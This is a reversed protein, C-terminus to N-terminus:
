KYSLNGVFERAAAANDSRVSCYWTNSAWEIVASKAGDRNGEIVLKNGEVSAKSGPDNKESSSRKATEFEEKARDSNPFVTIDVFVDVGEPSKYIAHYSKRGPTEQQRFADRSFKGVSAPMMESPPGSLWSCGLALGVMMFLASIGSLSSANKM